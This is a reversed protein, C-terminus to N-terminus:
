YAKYGVCICCPRKQAYWVNCFSFVWQTNTLLATERWNIGRKQKPFTIGPITLYNDWHLNGSKANMVCHWLEVTQEGQQATSTMLGLFESQLTQHSTEMEWCVTQFRTPEWYVIQASIIIIIEALSKFLRALSVKQHYHIYRHWIELLNSIVIFKINRNESM